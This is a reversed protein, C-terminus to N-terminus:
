AAGGADVVAARLVDLDVPKDLLAHAGLRQAEAHTEADAFASLLLVPCTLGRRRLRALVELGSCGPMRVDSVIVDPPELSGGQGAMMEVYDSLEFGDEVEVVTHGARSLARVLLARMADDDEALLIRLARPAAPPATM